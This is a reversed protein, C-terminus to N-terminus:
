SVVECAAKAIGAKESASAPIESAAFHNGAFTRQQGKAVPKSTPENTAISISASM